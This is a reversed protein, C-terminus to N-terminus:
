ESSNDPADSPHALRDELHNAADAYLEFRRLQIARKTKNQTTDVKGKAHDAKARLKKALKQFAEDIKGSVKDAEQKLASSHDDDTKKAGKSMIKIGVNVINYSICGKPHM